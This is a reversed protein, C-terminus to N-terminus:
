LQTHTNPPPSYPVGLADWFLYVRTVEVVPSKINIAWSKIVEALIFSHGLGRSYNIIIKELTNHNIWVTGTVQISQNIWFQTVPVKYKQSMQCLAETCWSNDSTTTTLPTTMLKVKFKTFLNIMTWLLYMGFSLWILELGSSTSKSTKKEM